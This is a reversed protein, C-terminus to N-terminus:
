APDDPDAETVATILTILQRRFNDYDEVAGFLRESRREERRAVALADVGEAGITVLTREATM